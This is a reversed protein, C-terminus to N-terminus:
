MSLSKSFVVEGASHRYGLTLIEVHEVSKLKYKCSCVLPLCLSASLVTPNFKVFNKRTVIVEWAWLRLCPWCFHQSSDLVSGFWPSALSPAGEGSRVLGQGFVRVIVSPLSYQCSDSVLEVAAQVLVYRSHLCRILRAKRSGNCLSWILICCGEYSRRRYVM